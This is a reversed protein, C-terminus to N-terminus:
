QMTIDPIACVAHMACAYGRRLSFSFMVHLYTSSKWTKSSFITVLKGLTETVCFAPRSNCSISVEFASTSFPDPIYTVSGQMTM